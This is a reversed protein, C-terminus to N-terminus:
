VAGGGKKAFFDREFRKAYKCLYDIRKGLSGTETEAWAACQPCLYVMSCGRCEAPTFSGRKSEYEAVLRAWADRFKMAKLSYQFSTFMTCPSLNGYPNVNFALVGAGCGESEAPRKNWFKDFLEECIKSDEGDFELKAMRDIDLRCREPGAGGDTRPSILADFHFWVGLSKALGRMGDLDAYNLTMLITKLSFKVGRKGLKAIGGMTREFSGKVRTIQDHLPPRSGYISIDIGFPPFEAFLGAIGDDILTGNTFVEVIMGRKVAHLYIDPFDDRLLVEGGTLLLWLCGAEAAEDLIRRAEATTLEDLKRKDDAGLNCYCHRCAQNCRYTLDFAGMFPIRGRVAAGELSASFESFRRQSIHCFM